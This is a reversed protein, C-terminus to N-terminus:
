EHFFTVKKEETNLGFVHQVVSVGRPLDSHGWECLAACIVVAEDDDPTYPQRLVATFHKAVDPDLGTGDTDRMCIASAIEREVHLIQPDLALKPVILESFRPGFNATYHSITRLTSSVKIGVSLKLALQPVEAM